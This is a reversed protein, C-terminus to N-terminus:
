KIENIIWTSSLTQTTEKPTVGGTAMVAATILTVRKLQMEHANIHNSVKVKKNLIRLIQSTQSNLQGESFRIKLLVSYWCFFDFSFLFTSIQM